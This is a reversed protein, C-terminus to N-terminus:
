SHSLVDGWALKLFPLLCPFSEPEGVSCTAGEDAGGVPGPFEEKLIQQLLSLLLPGLHISFTDLILRLIWFSALKNRNIIVM